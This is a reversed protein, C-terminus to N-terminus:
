AGAKIRQAVRYALAMTSLMPNVGSATPFGSADAIFLGRVGHVQGYPDAVSTAADSGLRCSGMQHASFIPLTNPRVGRRDIEGIFGSLRAESMAGPRGDESELILPQSHLMAVRTAGGAVAIRALEGMGRQLFRRDTENPFYHLIPDGQRDLTIHGEGTDRTLALFTAVHAARLMEQKHALGSEWPTVMGLMGPHAPAVEFRLGYGGQLRAFQDSLVTQLSGKWAEVPEAYYGAVAAVPHLRLHRGINANTLGSRLLLAPSEVSGAAVIVVPARVTIKRPAGTADDPAHGEVGVARGAETLVREVQCRVVIRAGQEHAEQITTILSSQKRSYPCGYGCAGCRQQCESANRPIRRMSYGLAACGRGLAANNPNPDSDETNVGLRREAYDFGEQYEASTANSLGYDREWEELVDPPTRLSTSWNVVTGGGLCSGALVIMGLDSTSLMGRRLYLQPTMEAESGTFDAESYYGGKELIIVDKGAATLQAAVVGAGAGSGVIVADANLILDGDLALPRIRKPALEAVPPPTAPTYGLAPWNPNAGDVVPASYYIFTALRKIAQFGQRLTGLSSVSMKRLLKERTALPLHVFSQPRGVLTLGALPSQLLGLLQKFQARSEPSEDALTEAMVQAVGLDRASRAYFDSVASQDAPSTVPPTVSPILAECISELTQMDAPTLWSTAATPTTVQAATQAPRHQTTAM